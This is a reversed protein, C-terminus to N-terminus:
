SLYTRLTLVHLSHDLLLWPQIFHQCCFKTTYLLRGPALPKSPVLPDHFAAALIQSQLLGSHHHLRLQLPSGLTSPSKFLVQPMAGNPQTLTGLSLGPPWQPLHLRLQLLSGLVSSVVPGHTADFFNVREEGLQKQDYHEDCCYFGFM